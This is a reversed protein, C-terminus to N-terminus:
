LHVQQQRLEHEPKFIRDVALVSKLKESLEVLRNFFYQFTDWRVVTGTVVLEVDNLDHHWAQPACILEELAVRRGEGHELEHVDGEPVDLYVGMIALTLRLM